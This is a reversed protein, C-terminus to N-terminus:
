HLYNYLEQTWDAGNVPCFTHIGLAAAASVNRPGDDVFLTEGPAVKEADLVRLFFDHDPKLVGMQYSLYCADLYYALSHGCGDFEDSMAWSMMFPNTNSLLVVRYGQRRLQQLADLNRKPLEGCYGLWAHRCQANSVEHGTLLSLEQRFQEASISGRELDGFIGDQTYADLRQEADALGLQQFRRIAQQQDLTIVVGGLDFIITRIM